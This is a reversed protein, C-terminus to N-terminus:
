FTKDTGHTWPSGANYLMTALNFLMGIPSTLYMAQYMPLTGLYVKYTGHAWPSGANYLITLNFLMGNPSTHYVVYM